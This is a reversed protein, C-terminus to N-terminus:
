AKKRQRAKSRTSSAPPTELRAEDSDRNDADSSSEEKVEEMEPAGPQDDTLQQSPSSEVTNSLTPVPSTPEPANEQAIRQIMQKTENEHGNWTHCESCRWKGMDELSKTGPPAQGNVLRCNQCILVIRNKPQTEDEGLVVDMIRDYWKPGASHYEPPVHSPASFANPAFEESPAGSPPAPPFTRHRPDQLPKSDPGQPTTPVGSPQPQRGPINATPPPAIGTRGSQPPQKGQTAKRKAPTPAPKPPAAGYKELLQQTTNYKTAAKLKEIAADRQKNLDNLYRQTNSIRYNYYADLATRVGYILVPGGAIGTYEAPRWKQWGTVLTLIVAVLIYTFGTYLTWLVKYRRQRQRLTDNKASARNIKGSLTSLTKEFSAASSDDGKFPWFSVM